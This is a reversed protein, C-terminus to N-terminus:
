FPLSDPDEDVEVSGAAEQTATAETPRETVKDLTEVNDAILEWVTRKTGDQADYQRCQMTGEVAVKRGKTVYKKVFEATQRWAVVTFFDADHGGQANKYRRSVAVRFTAVSVGAQTTRLEPDAAM